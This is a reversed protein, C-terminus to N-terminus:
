GVRVGGRQSQLGYAPEGEQLSIINYEGAYIFVYFKKFCRWDPEQNTKNMRLLRRKRCGRRLKAHAAEQSARRWQKDWMLAVDGGEVGGGTERYCTERWNMLTFEDNAPNKM